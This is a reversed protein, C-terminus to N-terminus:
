NLYISTIKLMVETIIVLLFINTKPYYWVCHETYGMIVFLMPIVRYMFNNYNSYYWLVSRLSFFINLTCETSKLISYRHSFRCLFALAMETVERPRFGTKENLDSFAIVICSLFCVKKKSYSGLM